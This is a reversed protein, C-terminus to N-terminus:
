VTIYKQGTPAATHETYKNENLSVKKNKTSRDTCYIKGRFKVKNDREVEMYYVSNNTLITFTVTFVMYNGDQVASVNTLTETKGTGDETLTVKYDTGSPRYGRPVIKLQQSTQVPALVNM